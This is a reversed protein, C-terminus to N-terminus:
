NNQQHLDLSKWTNQTEDWKYFSQVSQFALLAAKKRNELTDKVDMVGAMPDMKSSAVAHGMTSTASSAISGGTGGIAGGLLRSISSIITAILGQKVASKGVNKMIQDQDPLMMGVAAIPNEQDSSQFTVHLQQGKLDESKILAQIQEYTIEM